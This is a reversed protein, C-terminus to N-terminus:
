SCNRHTKGLWGGEIAEWLLITSDRDWSVGEAKAADYFADILPTSANMDATSIWQCDKIEYSSLFGQNDVFKKRFDPFYIGCVWGM